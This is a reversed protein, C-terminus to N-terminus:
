TAICGLVRASVARFDRLARQAESAEVEGLQVVFYVADTLRALAAAADDVTRGGDVLVLSFADAAERLIEELQTAEAMPEGAQRRGAPLLSVGALATAQFRDRVPKNSRLAEALGSAQGQELGESLSRRALDADILLVRQAHKEALLAAVHVLVEHTSSRPGVGVLLLTKSATQEAERQLRDALQALPQSRGPDSLTRRVQRELSGPKRLASVLAHPLFEQRGYFSKPEVQLKDPATTDLVAVDVRPKEVAPADKGGAEARRVPRVLMEPSREAPEAPESEVEVVPPMVLTAARTDIRPREALHALLDKQATTKSRAELNKLAQLMRAM